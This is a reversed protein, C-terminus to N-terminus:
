KRCKHDRDHESTSRQRRELCLIESLQPDGRGLLQHREIRLVGIEVLVGRQQRVDVLPEDILVLLQLQLRTKRRGSVVVTQVGLPLELEAVVDAKM